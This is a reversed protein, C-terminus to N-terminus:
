QRYCPGALRTRAEACLQWLRRLASLGLDESSAAELRYLLRLLTRLEHRAPDDGAATQEALLQRLARRDDLDVQCRQGLGAILRRLADLEDESPTDHPMQSPLRTLIHRAQQARTAAPHFRFPLIVQAHAQKVFRYRPSGLM